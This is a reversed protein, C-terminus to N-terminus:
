HGTIPVLTRRTGVPLWAYYWPGLDGLAPV